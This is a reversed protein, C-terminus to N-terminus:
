GHAEATPQLDVVIVTVNDRGGKALAMAVIDPALVAPDVRNALHQAIEADTMVTHLGDSCLLLRDGSEVLCEFMHIDTQERAGLVNTLVHRMPHNAVSAADAAGDRALVTAAWSDDKTLPTLVGKSFLYARSDGVHAVSLRGDSILGAAVTTGMGTYDDHSEAARFVRRNALFIATRLRNGEYSLDRDIGCPWSFETTGDSRKLFAAAAELALRSAVEGAAHGGMGDAVAFFRLAADSVFSDENSRRPGTESVGCAVIQFSHFTMRTM